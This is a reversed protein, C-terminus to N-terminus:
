YGITDGSAAALGRLEQAMTDRQTSLKRFQNCLDARDTDALREAAKAFGDKGDKLTEILNKTVREDTSMM